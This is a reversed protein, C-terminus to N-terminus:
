NLNPLQRRRTEFEEAWRLLTQTYDDNGGKELMERAIQASLRRDRCVACTDEHGVMMSCNAVEIQLRLWHEGTHERTM